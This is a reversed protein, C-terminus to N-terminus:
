PREYRDEQYNFLQDQIDPLELTEHRYQQVPERNDEDLELMWSAEINDWDKEVRMRKWRDYRMERFIKALDRFIRTGFWATLAMVVALVPYGIVMAATDVNDIFADM